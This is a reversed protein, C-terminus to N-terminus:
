QAVHSHSKIARYRRNQCTEDVYFHNSLVDEADARQLDVRQVVPLPLHGSMLGSSDIRRLRLAIRPRFDATNDHNPKNGTSRSSSIAATGSLSITNYRRKSSQKFLCM